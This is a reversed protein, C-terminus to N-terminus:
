RGKGSRGEPENCRLAAAMSVILRLVADRLEPTLEPTSRVVVKSCAMDDPAPCAKKSLTPQKTM